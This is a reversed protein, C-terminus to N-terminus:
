GVSHKQYAEMLESLFVKEKQLFQYESNSMGGRQEKFALAEIHKNLSDTYSYGPQSFPNKFEPEGPGFFGIPKGSHDFKVNAFTTELMFRGSITLKDEESLNGGAEQWAQHVSAPANPPPFRWTYAEGIAVFGDDNFDKESGPQQLLNAAGENNLTSIKIDFALSHAKQVVKLEAQSLSNLFAAPNNQAQQQEARQLINGFQDREDASLERRRLMDLAHASFEFKDAYAQNANDSMQPQQVAVITVVENKAYLQMVRNTNIGSISM